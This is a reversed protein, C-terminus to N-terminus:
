PSLLVRWEGRVGLEVGDISSVGLPSAFSVQDTGRDNSSSARRTRGLRRDRRFDGRGLSLSSARHHDM